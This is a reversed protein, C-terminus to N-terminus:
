SIKLQDVIKWDTNRLNKLYLLKGLAGRAESFSTYWGNDYRHDWILFDSESTALPSRVFEERRYERKLFFTTGFEVRLIRYSNGKRVIQYEISKIM